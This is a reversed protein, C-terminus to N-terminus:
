IDAAIMKIFCEPDAKRMAKTARPSLDLHATDAKDSRYSHRLISLPKDYGDFWPHAPVTRNRFYEVLRTDLHQVTLNAVPWRKWTLKAPPNVGFTAFEAILPNGFYPIPQPNIESKLFSVAVARRSIPHLVHGGSCIHCGLTVTARALLM